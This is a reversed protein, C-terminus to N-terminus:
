DEEGITWKSLVGITSVRREGRNAVKLEWAEENIEGDVRSLFLHWFRNSLLEVSKWLRFLV